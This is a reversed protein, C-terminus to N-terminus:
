LSNRGTRTWALLYFTKGSVEVECSCALQLFAGWEKQWCKFLRVLAFSIASAAVIEQGKCQTNSWFSTHWIENWSAASGIALNFAQMIDKSQKMGISINSLSAPKLSESFGKLRTCSSGLGKTQLANCNTAHTTHVQMVVHHKILFVNFFQISRWM